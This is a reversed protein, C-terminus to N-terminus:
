DKYCSTKARLASGGDGGPRSIRSELDKSVAGKIATLDAGGDRGIEAIGNLIERLLDRPLPAHGEGWAGLLGFIEPTIWGRSFNAKENLFRLFYSWHEKVHYYDSANQLAFLAQDNRLELSQTANTVVHSRLVEPSEDLSASADFLRAYRCVDGPFFRSIDIQANWTIAMCKRISPLLTLSAFGASSGGCLVVFSADLATRYYKIIQLIAAPLDLRPFGRFWAVRLERDLLLTPDSISLFSATEAGPCVGQGVFVPLRIDVSRNILPNLFVFLPKGYSVRLLCDIPVGAAFFSHIGERLLPDDLAEIRPVESLEQIDHTFVPKKWRYVARLKKDYEM